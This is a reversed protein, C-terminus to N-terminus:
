WGYTMHVTGAWNTGDSVLGIGVATNESVARQYGIAGAVGGFSDVGIAGALSNDFRFDHQLGAAALALGGLSKADDATQEVDDIRRSNDAIAQSNSSIARRNVQIETTNTEIRTTNGSINTENTEIRTTNGSINTENTEIRTTNGSINTENVSIATTNTQIDMMNQHAKGSQDLAGLDIDFSRNAIDGDKGPAYDRSRMTLTSGNLEGSVVRHDQANLEADKGYFCVGGSCSTTGYNTALAATSIFCALLALIFTKMPDDGSKVTVIPRGYLFLPGSSGWM